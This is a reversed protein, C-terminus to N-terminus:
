RARRVRVARRGPATAIYSGLSGAKITVVDGQRLPLMVQEVTEWVGGDDLEFRILGGSLTRYAGVTGVLQKLQEDDKGGGFLKISPLSFGFLSRKAKRIEARDLVVIDQRTRAETIAKAAEDFCALRADNATIGRCTALRDIALPGARDAEVAQAGNPAALTLLAMAALMNM